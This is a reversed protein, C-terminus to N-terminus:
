SYEPVVRCAFDVDARKDCWDMGRSRSYSWSPARGQPSYAYPGLGGSLSATTGSGAEETVAPYVYFSAGRAACNTFFAIWEGGAKASTFVRDVAIMGCTFRQDVREGHSVVFTEGSAPSTTFYSLPRPIGTTGLPSLEPRLPKAPSWLLPSINTATYSAAGSLDGTFGLLDRLGTSDWTIGFNGAGSALKVRRDRTLVASAGAYGAAVMAARVADLISLSGTPHYLYRSGTVSQLSADVSLYYALSKVSGVLWATSYSAM